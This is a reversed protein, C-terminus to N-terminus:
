KGNKKEKRKFLRSVGDTVLSVAKAELAIRIAKSGFALIARLAHAM